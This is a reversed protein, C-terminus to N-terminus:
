LDIALESLQERVRETWPGGGEGALALAKRYMLAAQGPNTLRFLNGLGTLASARVPM